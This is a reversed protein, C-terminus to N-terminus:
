DKINENKAIIYDDNPVIKSIYSNLNVRYVTLGRQLLVFNFDYLFIKLSVEAISISNFLNNLKVTDIQNNNISQLCFNMDCFYFNHNESQQQTKQATSGDALTSSFTKQVQEISFKDFDFNNINCNSQLTKAFLSASLNFFLLSIIFCILIRKM